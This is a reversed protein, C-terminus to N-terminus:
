DETELTGSEKGVQVLVRSDARQSVPRQATGAKRPRKEM